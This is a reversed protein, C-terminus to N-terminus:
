ILFYPLKKYFPFRNAIIRSIATNTQIKTEISLFRKIKKKNNNINAPFAPHMTFSKGQGVLPGWRLSKSQGILPGSQFHPFCSPPSPCTPVTLSVIWEAAENPFNDKKRGINQYIHYNDM